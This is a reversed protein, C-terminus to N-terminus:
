DTKEMTELFTQASSFSKAHERIWDIDKDWWRIQLLKEVERPTFRYRIVKAPVGGVIAYPPVDETVVAGAAVIAGDGVTVHELITARAGIWVDNGIVVSIKKNPDIYQYEEFSNEDVFTFGSQKATSYFAPHVSIFETPHTGSATLIEPGLCSYKGIATNRIFSREGVYSAYGMSSNLFVTGACIRNAGEFRCAGDVVAKSNINCASRFKKRRIYQKVHQALMRM